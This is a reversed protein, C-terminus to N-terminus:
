RTTGSAITMARQGIFPYEDAVALSALALKYPSADGRLLRRGAARLWQDAAAPRRGHATLGLLGYCLSATTTTPSLRRELYELSLGIRYDDCSEGALAMMALGTPQTHALLPQGLVMTNGYNAGGDPLLRDVILRLAESTRPHQAEGVAKLALVFMATPELWSHTNAAWSWGVLTTDHGVHPRRRNPRGRDSLAWAVARRINSVYAPTSRQSDIQKWLLIALGTPWCPSPQAATVGISGNPAQLAALWDGARRAADLKGHASLAMGALATPEAAAPTDAHYGGPVGAALRDVLERKWSM